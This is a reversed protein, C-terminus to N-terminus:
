LLLVAEIFTSVGLSASFGIAGLLAVTNLGTQPSDFLPVQGAWERRDKKELVTLSCFPSDVRLTSPAQLDRELWGFLTRGM